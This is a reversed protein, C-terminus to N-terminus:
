SVREKRPKLWNKPNERDYQSIISRLTRGKHVRAYDYLSRGAGKVQRCIRAGRTIEEAFVDDDDPDIERDYYDIMISNSDESVNFARKCQETALTRLNKVARETFLTPQWRSVVYICDYERSYIDKGRLRVINDVFGEGLIVADRWADYQVDHFKM